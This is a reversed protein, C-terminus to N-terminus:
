PDVEPLLLDGLPRFGGSLHIHMGRHHMREMCPDPDFKLTGGCRPTHCAACRIVDEEFLRREGDALLHVLEWEHAHGDDIRPDREWCLDWPPEAPELIPGTSYNRM